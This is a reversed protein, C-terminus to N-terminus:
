NYGKPEYCDYARILSVYLFDLDTYGSKDLPIVRTLLMHGVLLDAGFTVAYDIIQGNLLAKLGSYIKDSKIILYKETYTNYIIACGVVDIESFDVEFVEHLLQHSLVITSYMYQYVTQSVTETKVPLLGHGDNQKVLQVHKNYMDIIDHHTTRQRTWELQKSKREAKSEDIAAAINLLLRKHEREEYRQQERQHEVFSRYRTVIKVFDCSSSRPMYESVWKRFDPQFGVVRKRNDVDRIFILGDLEDYLDNEYDRFSDGSLLPKERLAISHVVDYFVRGFRRLQYPKDDFHSSLFSCAYNSEVIGKWICFTAFAVAVWLMVPVVSVASKVVDVVKEVMVDWYSTNNM